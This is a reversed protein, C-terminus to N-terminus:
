QILLFDNLRLTGFNGRYIALSVRNDKDNDGELWLLPCEPVPLITMDSLHKSYLCSSKFKIEVMRIKFLPHQPCSYQHMSTIGASHFHVCPCGQPESTVLGLGNLSNWTLFFGHRLFHSPHSRLFLGLKIELRRVRVSCMYGCVCTYGCLCVHM